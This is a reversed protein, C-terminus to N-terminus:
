KENLLLRNFNKYFKNEVTDLDLHAYPESFVYDYLKKADDRKMNFMEDALSYWEAQSKPKFITLNTLQKRCIKPFLFFSQLTFIFSTNLHRAKILMTNLIKLIHKDSRYSDAYDDIIVLNYETEKKEDEEDERDEKISKLNDYLETLNEATLEHYVTPHNAFPHKDVSMFSVLPCFYFVNSFKGRYIHTRFLNLMMSTKGSGGSGNIAWIFGNRRPIDEIIQPIFIEMSEKVPKFKPLKKNPIIEIDGIPM